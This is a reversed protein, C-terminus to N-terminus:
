RSFFGHVSSSEKGGSSRAPKEQREQSQGSHSKGLRAVEGQLLSVPPGIAILYRTLWVGEDGSGDISYRIASEVKVIKM